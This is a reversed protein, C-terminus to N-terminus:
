GHIISMEGMIVGSSTTTGLNAFLLCAEDSTRQGKLDWFDENSPINPSPIPASWYREIIMLWLNGATGSSASLTLSQISQVGTDGSALPLQYMRGAPMSAIGATSVTTRGAVGASNTYSVTVNHATAGIASSCGVWIELGAGTSERAPLGTFGTITQATTSTGSLGSCAWCLDFCTLGGANAGVASVGGFYAQTGPQATWRPFGASQGSQNYTTGGASAAAPTAMIGFGSTVLQNLNVIGGAVNTASPFFLRKVEGAALAATLQDNTTIAM